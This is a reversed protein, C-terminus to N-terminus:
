VESSKNGNVVYGQVRNINKHAGDLAVLAVCFRFISPESSSGRSELQVTGYVAGVHNWFYKM